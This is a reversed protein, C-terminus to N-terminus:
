NESSLNGIVLKAVGRKKSFPSVATLATKPSLMESSTLWVM